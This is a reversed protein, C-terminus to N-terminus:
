SGLPSVSMTGPYAAHSGVGDDETASELGQFDFAPDRDRRAGRGREVDVLEIGGGDEVAAETGNANRSNHGCCKFTLYKARSGLWGFLRSFPESFRYKHLAMLVLMYVGVVAGVSFPTFDIDGNSNLDTKDGFKLLFLTVMTRGINDAVTVVAADAFLNRAQQAMAVKAEDRVILADGRRSRGTAARVEVLALRHQRRMHEKAEEVAEHARIVRAAGHVHPLARGSASCKSLCSATASSIRKDFWEDSWVIFLALLCSMTQDLATKFTKHWLNDDEFHHSLTKEGMVDLLGLGGYLMLLLVFAMVKSFRKVCRTRSGFYESKGRAVALHVGMPLDLQSRSEPLGLAHDRSRASLNALATVSVSRLMRVPHAAIDPKADATTPQGPEALTLVVDTPVVPSRLRSSRTVVAADDVAAGGVPVVKPKEEAGTRDQRM